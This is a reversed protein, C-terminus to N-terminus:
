VPQKVAICLIFFAKCPENAVNSLLLYIQNSSQKQRTAWTGQVPEASRVKVVLGAKSQPLVAWGILM